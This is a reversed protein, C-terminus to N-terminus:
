LTVETEVPAAYDVGEVEFGFLQRFGRKYDAFDTLDYLNETTIQPWLRMVEAQVAPALEYNDMRIRSETDLTPTRGPGIQTAFLRVMQHIPEEHRGRAKL